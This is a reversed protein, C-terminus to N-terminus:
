GYPELSTYVKVIPAYKLASDVTKDNQTIKKCSTVVQFHCFIALITRVLNKSAYIIPLELLLGYNCKGYHFDPLDLSANPFFPGFVQNKSSMVGQFHYFIALILMVLNKGACTSPLYLLLVYNCKEYHFDPLDLSANPVFPGFVENKSLIVGQFHCFPLCQRFLIKALM